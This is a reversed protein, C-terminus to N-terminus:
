RGYKGMYQHVLPKLHVKNEEYQEMMSELRQKEKQNDKIKTELLAKIKTVVKQNDPGYLLSDLERKIIESKKDLTSTQLSLLNLKKDVYDCELSVLNGINNV